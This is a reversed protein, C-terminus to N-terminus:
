PNHLRFFRNTSYDVPLTVSYNSNVIDPLQTEDNWVANQLNTTEALKFGSANTTWQLAVSSGNVSIALVPLPSILVSVGGSNDSLAYDPVAFVLTTIANFTYTTVNNTSNRGGTAATRILNYFGDTIAGAYASAADGWFVWGGASGNTNSFAGDFLQSVSTNTAADGTFVLYDTAWPANFTWATNIQSTQGSTLSPFMAAADSPNVVRFAYTGPQVTYELLSSSTNFPQYWLSQDGSAAAAGDAHADINVIATNAPLNATIVTGCKARSSFGAVALLIMTGIKITREM